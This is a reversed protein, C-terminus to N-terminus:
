LMLTALILSKGKISYDANVEMLTLRWSTYLTVYLLFQTFGDVLLKVVSCEDEAAVRGLLAAAVFVLERLDLPRDSRPFSFVDASSNIM